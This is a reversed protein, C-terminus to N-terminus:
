RETFFAQLGNYIYDYAWPYDHVHGDVVYYMLNGDPFGLETFDFAEPHAQMAELQANMNEFALDRSGTAAFVFYDRLGYGSDVVADALQAATAESRSLGGMPEQNWSDGSMPLFYEFHSLRHELMHWTTVGGMSFGGFARHGRSDILGQLDTTRAYTHYRSEVAPMLDGVLEESFAAVNDAFGAVGPAFTPAVVILPDIVSDAIMHDLVSTLATPSSPRGMWSYEDDGSGHMLYFVDYRTDVDDDDYGPPLYILAGKEVPGSDKPDHTTSYTLHELTGREPAPEHYHQPALTLTPEASSPTASPGEAGAVPPSWVSVTAAAAATAAMLTLRRGLWSTIRM